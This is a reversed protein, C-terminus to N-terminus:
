QTDIKLGSLLIIISLEFVVRNLLRIISLIPCEIPIIIGNNM